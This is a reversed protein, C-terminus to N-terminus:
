GARLQLEDALEVDPPAELSDYLFGTARSKGQEIAQWAEYDHEADSDEGPEHANSIALVRAAGDRSKTANRAIVKAM